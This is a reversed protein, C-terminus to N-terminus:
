NSGSNPGRSAAFEWYGLQNIPKPDTPWSVPLGRKVRELVDDLDPPWGVHYREDSM